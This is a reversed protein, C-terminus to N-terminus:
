ITKHHGAPIITAATLTTGDQSFWYGTPAEFEILAGKKFYKTDITATDGVKQVVGGVTFFGTSQNNGTSSM